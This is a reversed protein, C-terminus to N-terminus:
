KSGRRRKEVMGTCIAYARARKPMARQEATKAPPLGEEMLKAVCADRMKVHKESWGKPRPM